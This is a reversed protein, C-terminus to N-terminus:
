LICQAPISDAATSQLRWRLKRLGKGGPILAGSVDSVTGNLTANVVQAFGNIGFFCCVVVFACVFKRKM